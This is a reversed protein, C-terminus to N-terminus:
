DHSSPLHNLAVSPLVTHETKRQEHDRSDKGQAARRSLGSRQPPDAIGILRGVSRLLTQQERGPPQPWTTRAELDLHPEGEAAITTAQRHLQAAVALAEGAFPQIM